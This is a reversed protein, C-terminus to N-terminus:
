WILPLLRWRVRAAYLWYNRLVREEARIRLVILFLFLLLMRWNHLSGSTLCVGALSLIEGLYMPHRLVSYPLRQVIGRDEPVISFCTGLVALAWLSLLLGPLSYALSAQSTEFALPTLVCAWSILIMALSQPVGAPRRMVLLFAALGSQVALVAAVLHGGAAQQIRLMTLLLFFAAGLMSSLESYLINM